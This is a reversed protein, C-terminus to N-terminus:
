AGLVRGQTRIGNRCKSRKKQCFLPTIGRNQREKKGGRTAPPDEGGWPRKRLPVKLLGNAGRGMRQHFSLDRERKGAAGNASGRKAPVLKNATLWGSVPFWLHRSSLTETALSHQTVRGVTERVLVPTHDEKNKGQTLKEKRKQILLKALDNLLHPAWQLACQKSVQRAHL